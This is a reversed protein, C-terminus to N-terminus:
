SRKRMSLTVKEFDKIGPVSEGAAKLDAYATTSLRRQLLFLSNTEIIYQEFAEYDEISGFTSTSITASARNSHLGCVGQEKIKLILCKEIVGAEEDLEKIAKNLDRKQAKLDYLRDILDGINMETTM